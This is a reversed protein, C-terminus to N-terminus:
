ITRLGSEINNIKALENCAKRANPDKMAEPTCKEDHLMDLFGLAGQRLAFWGIVLVAVVVLITGTSGLGM